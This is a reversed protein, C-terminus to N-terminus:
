VPRSRWSRTVLLREDVRSVHVHKASRHWQDRRSKPFSHVAGIPLPQMGLERHPVMYRDRLEHANIAKPGPVLPPFSIGQHLLSIHLQLTTTSSVCIPEEWSDLVGGPLGGPHPIGIGPYGVLLVTPLHALNADGQCNLSCNGSFKAVGIAVCACPFQARSAALGGFVGRRPGSRMLMGVFVATTSCAWGPLYM